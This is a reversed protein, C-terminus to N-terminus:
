SLAQDPLYLVQVITQNKKFFVCLTTVIEENTLSGLITKSFTDAKKWSRIGCMCALNLCVCSYKDTNTLKELM